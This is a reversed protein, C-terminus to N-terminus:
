RDISERTSSFIGEREAEGYCSRPLHEIPTTTTPKVGEPRQENMVEGTM